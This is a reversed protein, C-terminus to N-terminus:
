KQLPHFSQFKKRGINLPNIVKPYGLIQTASGVSDWLHMYMHAPMQFKKNKVVFFDISHMAFTM